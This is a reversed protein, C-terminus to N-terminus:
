KAAISEVHDDIAILLANKEHDILRIFDAYRQEIMGHVRAIEKDFVLLDRDYNDLDSSSFSFTCPSSCRHNKSSLQSLRHFKAQCQFWHDNLTDNLAARHKNVCVQCIVEDCHTCVFLETKTSCLACKAVISLRKPNVTMNPSSGIQFSRDCIVHRDPDSACFFALVSTTTRRM